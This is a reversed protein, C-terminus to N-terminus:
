SSFSPSTIISDNKAETARCSLSTSLYRVYSFHSLSSNENLLILETFRNKDAIQYISNSNLLKSILLNSNHLDRLLLESNVHFSDYVFSEHIKSLYGSM